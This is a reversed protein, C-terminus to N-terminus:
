FKNWWEDGLYPLEVKEGYYKSYFKDAAEKEMREREGYTVNDKKAEEPHMKRKPTKLYDYAEVRLMSLMNHQRTTKRYERLANIDWLACTLREGNPAQTLVRGRFDVMSSYGSGGHPPFQALSAGNAVYLGFCINEISRARTAASWWGLTDTGLPDYWATCGVIIEAGNYALQRTVEPFCLDFCIGIGINGIETKAVPFLPHKNVDYGADLLDHPSCSLEMAVMPNIKRYSLLIGKPGVLFATNFLLNYEPDREIWSGPIIYMDLEKALKVFKESEEGPIEIAYKRQEKANAGPYGTLALEPMAALKVPLTASYVAQSRRVFDLGYEVNKRLQEKSTAEPCATQCAVVHYLGM